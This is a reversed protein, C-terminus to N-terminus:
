EKGDYLINEINVKILLLYVYIAYSIMVESTNHGHSEQFRSLYVSNSEKFMQNIYAYAEYIIREKRQLKQSLSRVMEEKILLEKKLEKKKM